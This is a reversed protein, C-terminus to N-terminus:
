GKRPRGHPKPKLDEKKIGPKGALSEVFSDEGLPLGNLNRKRIKKLIGEVEPKKLFGPCM